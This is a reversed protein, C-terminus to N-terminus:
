NVQDFSKSESLFIKTIPIDLLVIKIGRAKFHQLENKIDQKSRAFKDLEICAIIDDLRMVAKIKKIIKETIKEM